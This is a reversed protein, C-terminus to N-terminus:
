TCGIPNHRSAEDAMLWIANVYDGNRTCM